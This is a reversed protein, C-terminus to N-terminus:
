KINIDIFNTNLYDFNATLRTDPHLSKGDPAIAALIIDGNKLTNNQSVFAILEPIQVTLAKCDFRYSADGIQFSIADCEIFTDFPQLNGLICSRDFSIADTWPLGADRRAALIDEAVILAAATFSETYRYAFKSRISKGLRGIRIALAPLIRFKSDFDPVFVPNGNKVITSDAITFTCLEGNGLLNNEAQQAPYNNLIGIIKM